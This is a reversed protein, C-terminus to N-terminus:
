PSEESSTESESDSEEDSYFEPVRETVESLAARIAEVGVKKKCRLFFKQIKPVAKIMLKVHEAIEDLDVEVTFTKWGPFDDFDQQTVPKFEPLEGDDRLYDKLTDHVIDTTNAVAEEYTSGWSAVIPVQPVYTHCGEGEYGYLVTYQRKM